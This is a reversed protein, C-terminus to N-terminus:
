VAESDGTETAIVAYSLDGAMHPLPAKAVMNETLILHIAICIMWLITLIVLVCYPLAMYGTNYIIIGALVPLTADGAAGGLICVAVANSDLTKYGYCVPITM